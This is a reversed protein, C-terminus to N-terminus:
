EKRHFKGTGGHAELYKLVRTAAKQIEDEATKYDSARVAIRYRPAGLYQITVTSHDEKLAKLLADRIHIAGDPTPCTLELHGDINVYPPIINEKAVETFDKIWGGKLGEEELANERIVAEEFASYLSGFKEIIDLGVEEWLQESDKKLREAVIEFLKQARQENKWEQTKERRQHENVAKLSLDVHGKARDVRLVKCVIKQGERVYDRIYKIWGSAVEAIHIFGELADGPELRFEESGERAQLKKRGQPTLYEDLLVFAGFNKVNHVTCVVLESEEPFDDTRAM